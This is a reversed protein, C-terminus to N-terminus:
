LLKVALLKNAIEDAASIWSVIFSRGRAAGAKSFCEGHNLFIHIHPYGLVRHEDGWLPTGFIKVGCNKDGIGVLSLRTQLSAQGNM